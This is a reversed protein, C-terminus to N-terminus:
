SSLPRCISDNNDTSISITTLLTSTFSSVKLVVPKKFHLGHSGHGARSVAYVMKQYEDFIIEFNFNPSPTSSDRQRVLYKKLCEMLVVQLISLNEVVGKRHDTNLQQAYEVFGAVHLFPLTAGKQQRFPLEQLVRSCLALLTPVHQNKCYLIDIEELM